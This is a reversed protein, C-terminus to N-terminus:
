IRGGCGFCIVTDFDTSNKIKEQQLKIIFFPSSMIAITLDTKSLSSTIPNNACPAFTITNSLHNLIKNHFCIVLITKSKKITVSNIM